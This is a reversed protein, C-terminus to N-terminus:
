IRNSKLQFIHAVTLTFFSCGIFNFVVHYQVFAGFEFYFSFKGNSDQANLNSQVTISATVSASGDSTEVNPVKSDVKNDKNKHNRKNDVCEKNSDKNTTLTTPQTNTTASVVHVSSGTNSIIEKNQQKIDDKVQISSQRDSTDKNIIPEKVIQQQERQKRGKIPSERDKQQKNSLIVEESDCNASVVPTIEKATNSSVFEKAQVQLFFLFYFLVM